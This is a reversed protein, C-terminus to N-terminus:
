FVRLEFLLCACVFQFRTVNGPANDQEGTPEYPPPPSYLVADERPPAITLTVPVAPPSPPESTAVQFVIVLVKFMAYM